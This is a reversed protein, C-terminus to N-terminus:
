DVRQIPVIRVLLDGRRDGGQAVAALDHDVREQGVRFVNRVPGFEITVEHAHLADQLLCVCSAVREAHARRVGLRERGPNAILRRQDTTITLSRARERVDYETRDLEVVDRWQVDLAQEGEHELRVLAGVRQGDRELQRPASVEASPEITRVEVAVHNAEATVVTLERYGLRHLWFQVAMERYGAQKFLREETIGGTRTQDTAEAARITQVASQTAGLEEDTRRADTVEVRTLWLETVGITGRSGGRLDVRRRPRYGGASGTVWEQVADLRACEHARADGVPRAPDLRPAQGRGAPLEDPRVIQRGVHGGDFRPEAVDGTEAGRHPVDCRRQTGAEVLELDFAEARVDVPLDRVRVLGEGVEDAHVDHFLDPLLDDARRQGDGVVERAVLRRAVRQPRERLGEDLGTVGVLRQERGDKGARVQVHRRWLTATSVIWIVRRADEIGPAHGFRIRSMSAVADGVTNLRDARSRLCSGGVPRKAPWEDRVARHERALI